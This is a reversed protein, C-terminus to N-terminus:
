LGIRGLELGLGDFAVVVAPRQPTPWWALFRGAGVTAIVQSGDDLRIEVDITGEPTTGTIQGPPGELAVDVGLGVTTAPTGFARGAVELGTPGEVVLCYFQGTPWLWLFAAGAPGRQDQLTRADSPPADRPVDRTCTDRALDAVRSDPETPRPTWQALSGDSSAQPTITALSLLTCGGLMWAGIAAAILGKPCRTNM